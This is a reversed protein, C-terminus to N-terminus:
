RHGRQLDRLERYGILTAGSDELLQRLEDEVFRRDDVRGEWDPHTARLEPSDDAPHFFMETLGPRLTPLLQRIMSSAPIPCFALYDPAVVGLSDALERTRSPRRSVSLRVARRARPRGPLRVPLGYSAGLEVYAASMRDDFLLAHMHSDLHTVDIGWSLAREVQAKCEMVVDSLSARERMADPTKFFAGDGDRLSPSPTLPGWRVTGWESNLTLHVGVDEGDYQRAADGAAACPVMLSASTVVGDRLASYIASNAADSSGLDDCNVIVLKAGADYGLREVVPTRRDVVIEGLRPISM